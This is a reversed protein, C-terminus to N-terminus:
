LGSASASASASPDRWCRFCPGLPMYLVSAFMVPPFVAMLPRNERMARLGQRMDSLPRAQAGGGPVGPLAVGLLCLIAFVAGAVDVLMLPAIPWVALMAAGLAPGLMTSVSTILSGWGGAKTLMEAPVFLPIAAQMAPTHFAGGVGRLFLAGYIVGVPPEGLLLFLLGLAASSAAVLGGAAMMVTRRNHRDIWVGAFPGLLMNPLISVVAAATLTLASETRATLWWIVAFQVASSGLLSFAQGAYIVAFTRRWNKNM